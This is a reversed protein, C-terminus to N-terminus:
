SFLRVALIRNIERKGNVEKDQVRQRSYSTIKLLIEAQNSSWVLM